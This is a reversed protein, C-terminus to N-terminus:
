VRMTSNEAPYLLLYVGGSYRDDFWHWIDERHTGAPFDLFPEEMCETEPDMPVDSFDEWLKRLYEDSPEFETRCFGFMIGITAKCSNRHKCNECEGTM